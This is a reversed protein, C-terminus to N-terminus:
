RWNEEKGLKSLKEPITDLTLYGGNYPHTFSFHLSIEQASTLEEDTFADFIKATNVDLKLTGIKNFYEGTEEIYFFGIGTREDIISYNYNFQLEIVAIEFDYQEPDFTKLEELYRQKELTKKKILEDINYSHTNRLADRLKKIMEIRYANMYETNSSLAEKLAIKAQDQEIQNNDKNALSTTIAIGSLLIGCALVLYLLKMFM